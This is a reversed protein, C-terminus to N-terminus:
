NLRILALIAGFSSQQFVLLFSFIFELYPYPHVSILVSLIKCGVCTKAQLPRPEPPAGERVSLVQANSEPGALPGSVKAEAPMQVQDGVGYQVPPVMTLSAQISGPRLQHFIGNVSMEFDWAEESSAQTGTGVQPFGARLEGLLCTGSM